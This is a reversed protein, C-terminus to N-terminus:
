KKFYLVVNYFTNLTLIVLIDINSTTQTCHNLYYSVPCKLANEYQRVKYWQFALRRIKPFRRIM